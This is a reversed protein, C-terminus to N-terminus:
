HANLLLSADCKIVQSKLFYSKMDLTEYVIIAFYIMKDQSFAFFFYNFMNLNSNFERAYLNIDFVQSILIKVIGGKFSRLKRRWRGMILEMGKDNLKEYEAQASAKL